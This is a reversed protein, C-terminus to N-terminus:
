WKDILLILVGTKGDFVDIKIIEQHQARRKSAALGPPKETDVSPVVSHAHSRKTMRLGFLSRSREDERKDAPGRNKTNMWRSEFVLSGHNATRRRLQLM